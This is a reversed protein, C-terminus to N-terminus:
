QLVTLTLEAVATHGASDTVRLVYSTASAAATPTGTLHGAADVNLWTGLPAVLSWTYAPTGGSAVLPPPNYATHQKADPLSRTLISLHSLKERRTDDAKFLTAFVEFLKLSAKDSFMGVLASVALLGFPHATSADLNAGALFGGRVVLYFIFAIGAGILPRALYFPFWSTTLKRDGLYDVLSQLGGICAGFAGTFLVLLLLWAERPIIMTWYLVRWTGVGREVATLELTMANSSQEQGSHQEKHTVRVVVVGPADLTPTGLPIVLQHMNVYQVAPRDVGNFTVRSDQRFNYGFIRLSAQSTGITIKEPDIAKIQPTGDQPREKADDYSPEASPRWQPTKPEAVWLGYMCYVMAGGVILMYCFLAFSKIPHMPAAAHAMCQEKIRIHLTEIWTNIALWM